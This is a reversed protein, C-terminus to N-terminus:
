MLSINEFVSDILGENYLCTRFLCQFVCYIFKGEEIFKLVKLDMESHIGILVSRKGGLELTVPTLYEAAARMIIKGVM